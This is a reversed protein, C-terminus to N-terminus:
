VRSFDTVQCKSSTAASINSRSGFWTGPSGFGGGSAYSDKGPTTKILAVLERASPWFAIERDDLLIFVGVTILAARPVDIPLPRSGKDADARTQRDDKEARDIM